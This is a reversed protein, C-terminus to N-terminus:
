TRFTDKRRKVQKVKLCQLDRQLLLSTLQSKKEEKFPNSEPWISSKQFTKTKFQFLLFNFEDTQRETSLKRTKKTKSLLFCCYFVIFHSIWYFLYGNQKINCLEIAKFQRRNSTIGKAVLIVDTFTQNHFERRLDDILTPSSASLSKPSQLAKMGM